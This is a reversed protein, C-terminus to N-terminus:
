RGFYAAPPPQTVAVDRPQRLFIVDNQFIQFLEPLNKFM